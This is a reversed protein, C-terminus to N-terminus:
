RRVSAPRASASTAAYSRATSSAAARSVDVVLRLPGMARDNRFCAADAKVIVSPATPWTRSMVTSAARAIGLVQDTKASPSAGQRAISVTVRSVTPMGSSRITSHSKATARM